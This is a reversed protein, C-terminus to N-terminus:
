LPAAQAHRDTLTVVLNVCIGHQFNYPFTVLDLRIKITFCGPYANVCTASRSLQWRIIPVFHMHSFTKHGATSSNYLELHKKPNLRQLYSINQLQQSWKCGTKCPCVSPPFSAPIYLASPTQPLSLTKVSLHNTISDLSSNWWHMLIYCLQQNAFSLTCSNFCCM